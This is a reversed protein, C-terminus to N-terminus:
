KTAGMGACGPRSSRPSATMTVETASEDRPLHAGRYPRQRCTAWKHAIDELIVAVGKPAYDVPVPRRSRDPIPGLHAIAALSLGQANEYTDKAAQAGEAVMQRAKDALAQEALEEPWGSVDVAGTAKVHDLMSEWVCEILTDGVKDGMAFSKAAGKAVAEGVAAYPMAAVSYKGLGKAYVAPNGFTAVTVEPYVKMADSPSDAVIVLDPEPIESIPPFAKTLWAHSLFYVRPAQADPGVFQSLYKEDLCSFYAKCRVEGDFCLVKFTSAV